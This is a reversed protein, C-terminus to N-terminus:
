KGDFIDLGRSLDDDKFFEEDTGKFFLHIVPVSFHESVNQAFIGGRFNLLYMGLKTLKIKTREDLEFPVVLDFARPRGSPRGGLSRRSYM